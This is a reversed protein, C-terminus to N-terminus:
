LDNNVLTVKFMEAYSKQMQELDKMLRKTMRSQM